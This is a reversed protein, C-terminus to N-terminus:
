GKTEDLSTATSWSADATFQTCGPGPPALRHAPLEIGGEEAVDPPMCAICYFAGDHWRDRRYAWIQTQHMDFGCLCRIPAPPQAQRPRYGGARLFNAFAVKEAAAREIKAIKNRIDGM